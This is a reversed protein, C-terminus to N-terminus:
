RETDTDRSSDNIALAQRNRKMDIKLVRISIGLWVTTLSVAQHFKLHWARSERILNPNFRYLVLNLNPILVHKLVSGCALSPLAM